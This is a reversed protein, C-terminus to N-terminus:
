VAHLTVKILKGFMKLLLPNTLVNKNVVVSLIVRAGKGGGKNLHKIPKNKSHVFHMIKNKEFLDTVANTHTYPGTCTLSHSIKNAISNTEM